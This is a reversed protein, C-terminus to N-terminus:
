TPCEASVAKVFDPDIWGPPNLPNGYKDTDVENLFVVGALGKDKAYKIPAYAPQKLNEAWYKYRYVWVIITSRHAIPKYRDLFWDVIGIFNESFDYLQFEYFVLVNPYRTLKLLREVVAKGAPSGYDSIEQYFSFFIIRREGCYADLNDNYYKIINEMCDLYEPHLDFSRLEYDFIIGDVPVGTAKINDSWARQSGYHVTLPNKPDWSPDVFTCTSKAEDEPYNFIQLCECENAHLNIERSVILLRNPNKRWANILDAYKTLNQGAKSAEGSEYFEIFNFCGSNTYVDFVTELPFSRGGMQGFYAYGGLLFPIRCNSGNSVCDGISSYPAVDPHCIQRVPNCDWKGSYKDRKRFLFILAVALSIVLIIIGIVM